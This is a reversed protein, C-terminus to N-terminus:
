CKRNRGSGAIRLRNRVNFSVSKMKNVEFSVTDNDPFFAFAMSLMGVDSLSSGLYALSSDLGM